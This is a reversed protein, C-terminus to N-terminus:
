VDNAVAQWQLTATAVGDADTAHSLKASDSALQCLSLWNIQRVQALPVAQGLASDIQLTESGALQASGTIRRYLVTGDVLEIRIDRRNTQQAGFLSYYCPAVSITIDTAGVDALLRLDDQWSPVWLQGAQGALAYLLSRFATHADRGGLVFDQSQVRFPLGPLDFYYVKGTDADVSNGQRTYQVTPGNSEDGRWELVPVGRYTAAGPWAAPWDCSEDLLLTVKLSAADSSFETIEPMKQLRAARVPYLRTGLPWANATPAALTLSATDMAAVTALEWHQEDQWLVAQSGVAFDYGATTCAIATAGLALPAALWQVDPYIPLLFQTTGLNFLIADIIRRADALEVTQFAFTRRPTARLARTQQMATATSQLVDTLWALTEDVGGDWDPPAPWLVPQNVAYGMM